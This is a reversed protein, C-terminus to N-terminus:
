GHRMLATGRGIGSFFHNMSGATITSRPPTSGNPLMKMSIYSLVCLATQVGLQFMGAPVEDERREPRVLDVVHVAECQEDKEYQACHDHADGDHAAVEQHQEGAKIESLYASM